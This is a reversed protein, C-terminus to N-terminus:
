KGKIRFKKYYVTFLIIMAIILSSLIIWFRIVIEKYIKNVGKYNGTWYNHEVIMIQKKMYQSFFPLRLIIKRIYKNNKLFKLEYGAKNITYLSLVNSKHSILEEFSLVEVKDISTIYILLSDLRSLNIEKFDYNTHYLAVLLVDNKSNIAFDIKDPLAGLPGDFLNCNCNIYTIGGVEPEGLYGSFVSINNEKLAKLTNENASNWPPCFYNIECSLANTLIEKGKSIRNNQTEFPLTGFKWEKEHTYGHMALDIWGRSHWARLSDAIAMAPTLENKGAPEPIVAFLPKIDYKRFIQLVDYEFVPDSKASIDDNRFSIIINADIAGFSVTSLLLLTFTIFILKM